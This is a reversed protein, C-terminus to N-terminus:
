TDLRHLKAHFPPFEVRTVDISILEELGHFCHIESYFITSSARFKFIQRLKSGTQLTCRPHFVGFGSSFYGWFVGFCQFVIGNCMLFVKRVGLVVHSICLYVINHFDAM